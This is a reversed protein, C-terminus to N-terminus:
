DALMARLDAYVEAAPIGPGSDVGAQVLERLRMVELRNIMTEYSHANLMYAAPRDHQMVAVPREQAWDFISHPSHEFEAMSVCHSALLSEM